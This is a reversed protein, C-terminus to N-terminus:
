KKGSIKLVFAHECPKTEPMEVTLGKADRSFGLSGDVGLVRVEAVEGFWLKETSPLSTIVAEKEPWGLLIAYLANGKTTFRVDRSTGPLGKADQYSTGASEQAPGEGSVKWPRTSFIAEGNVDMWRTLGELFAREEDDITGDGRLPINLLLNGNKSVIDVLTQVVERVTKYHQGKKYHWVGICTDTQWPVEEVKRSRGREIDWVLGRAQEPKLHKTNLVAENAGGHWNRNANYYHAALRLGADSVDVLPMERDDFYLLDPRYTDVLNQVRKFFKEVYARDPKEGPKHNQAYLDQPDYGEWWTGQGNAKTLTGDYPVGAFPGEKDQGQAVEYWTWARASHVTAGFRLGNRRAAEAWIGVIDKKPGLNVSNWPQYESDWCDFNCHHNALAVFYKAGARKYLRILKEPDWNEATWIRCIDKFGFQSPHGYAALHSKFVPDGPIYMKRAYWDGQEPVCQATWHAWIGFKADRFWEPCNYQQILSEWTPQFPGAAIPLDLSIKAEQPLSMAASLAGLFLGATALIIPRARKRTRADLM